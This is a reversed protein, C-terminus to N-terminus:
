HSKNKIRVLMMKNYPNTAQQVIGRDLLDLMVTNTLEIDYNCIMKLDDYLLYDNRKYLLGDLLMESIEYVQKIDVM